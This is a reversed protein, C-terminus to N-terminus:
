FIRDNLTKEDVFYEWRGQLIEIFFFFNVMLNKEDSLKDEDCSFKM